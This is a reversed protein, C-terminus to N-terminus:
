CLSCHRPCFKFTCHTSLENEGEISKLGERISYFQDGLKNRESCIGSCAPDTLGEKDGYTGAPCPKCDEISSAGEEDNYTGLPCPATCNPSNLDTTNGYVGPPCKICGDLNIGGQIHSFIKFQRYHGYPCTLNPLIGNEVARKGANDHYWNYWQNSQCSAFHLKLCLLLVITTTSLTNVKLRMM